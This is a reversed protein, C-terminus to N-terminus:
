FDLTAYIPCHDSLRKYSARYDIADYVVEGFSDAKVLKAARPDVIIHDIYDKFKSNWCRPSQGANVRSLDAGSQMPDDIATWVGAQEGFGQRLEADFRRNFDGLIVFPQNGAAREDVWAELPAVQNALKRCSRKRYQERSSSAPMQAVAQPSLDQQFCGSKLHVALLRLTKGDRAVSLDMGYRVRGVDLARYETASAQLNASNRVAFGVRQEADRTSFHYSYDNGFVKRADEVSGVEQLAVIDADLEQATLQLKEYDKETRKNHKNDGLWYINWTAIKLEDAVANFSLLASLLLVAKKM